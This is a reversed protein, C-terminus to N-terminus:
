AGFYCRQTWVSGPALMETTAAGGALTAVVAWGIAFLPNRVVFGDRAALFAICFSLTAILWRRVAPAVMGAMLLLMIVPLAGPSRELGVRFYPELFIILIAAAM